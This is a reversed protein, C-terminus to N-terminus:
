RAEVAQFEVTWGRKGLEEVLTADSMVGCWEDGFGFGVLEEGRVASFEDGGIEGVSLSFCGWRLRIYVPRGDEMEADWQSPM